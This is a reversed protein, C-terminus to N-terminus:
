PPPPHHPQDSDLRRARLKARHKWWREIVHFVGLVLWAMAVGLVAPWLLGAGVALGVGATMWIGAATTLGKVNPDDGVKLIAGAGLFGIGTAVGQIVKTLEVPSGNVELSTLAFLAAGLCVMMHTRIGASKGEVQREYGIAGGLLISVALRVTARLLAHGDTANPFIDILLDHV